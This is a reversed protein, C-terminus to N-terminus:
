NKYSNSKSKCCRAARKWFHSQERRSNSVSMLCVRVQLSETLDRIQSELQTKEDRFKIEADIKERRAKSLQSETFKLKDELYDIRSNLREVEQKHAEEKQDCM